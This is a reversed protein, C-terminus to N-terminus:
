FSSIIVLSRCAESLLDVASASSSLPLSLHDLGFGGFPLPVALLPAVLSLRRLFPPVFAPRCSSSPSHRRLLVLPSPPLSLHAVIRSHVLSFAPQGCHLM